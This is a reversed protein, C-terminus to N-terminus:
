SKLFDNKTLYFKYDHGDTDKANPDAGHALLYNLVEADAHWAAYMLPTRYGAAPMADGVASENNFTALNVDAKNDLLIKVVNLNGYQIAYMLATKGFSNQANVNAGKKILLQLIDPRTVSNMLANDDLKPNKLNAGTDIITEIDRISYNNVIALKLLYALIEPKAQEKNVHQVKLIEEYNFDPNDPLNGNKLFDDVQGLGWCDRSCNASIFTNALHETYHAALNQATKLPIKKIKQYYNALGQQAKQRLRLTKQYQQKEWIGQLSFHYLVGLNANDPNYNEPLPVKLDHLVLMIASNQNKYDGYKLTGFGNSNPLYLFRLQNVYDELGDIKKIENSFDCRPTFNDKNSGYCNAFLKQGMEPDIDYIKCAFEDLGETAMLKQKSLIEFIECSKDKFYNELQKVNRDSLPSPAGPFSLVDFRDKYSQNLSSESETNNTNRSKLWEKQDKILEEVSVILRGKPNNKLNFFMKSTKNDLESLSPDDCISKELLTKAKKCDFSPKIKTDAYATITFGIFLILLLRM